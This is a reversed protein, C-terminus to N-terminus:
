TRTGGQTLCMEILNGTQPLRPGPFHSEKQLGTEKLMRRVRNRSIFVGQRRLLAWIRRYGYTINGGALAGILQRKEWEDKRLRRAPPRSACYFSQRAAPLVSSATFPLLDGAEIM